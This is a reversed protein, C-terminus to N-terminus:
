VMPLGGRIMDAPVDGHMSLEQLGTTEHVGYMGLVKVASLACAM